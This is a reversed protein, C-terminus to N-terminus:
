RLAEVITNLNHKVMGDFTGLDYGNEVQGPTGMADSFLEGGIAVKADTAIREITAHPVSTEVFIAKIERNRIFDVLTAMDALAAESVTSIGQLGIVQFGYARGFYSYADHSTVLIRKAAPLEASKAVAWDHLAALEVKAREGGARFAAAADPQAEVLGDVVADVCQAWLSIDFWIHPDPHGSQGAPHLLTEHPLHDAIAYVHRGARQMRTFIDTMKGELLLGNYFVVDARQLKRVDSATAKYLHPDVGAGMLTQVQVRERGIREVLDGVMGTTAVVKLPATAGSVAAACGAAWLVASWGRRIFRLM